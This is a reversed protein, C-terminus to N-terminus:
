AAKIRQVIRDLIFRIWPITSPAHTSIVKAGFQGFGGYYFRIFIRGLFSSSLTDNRFNRLAEVEPAFVDGYVATAIFCKESKLNTLGLERRKQEWAASHHPHGTSYAGGRDDREGLPM